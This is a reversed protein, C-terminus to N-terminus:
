FLQKNYRKTSLIFDIAARFIKSNDSPSLSTNRFRLIQTLVKGMLGAQWKDFM